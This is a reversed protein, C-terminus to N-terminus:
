LSLEISMFMRTIVSRAIAASASQQARVARECPGLVRSSLKPTECLSFTLLRLQFPTDCLYASRSHANCRRGHGCCPYAATLTDHGRQCVGHKGLRDLRADQACPGAAASHSHHLRLLLWARQDTAHLASPWVITPSESQLARRSDPPGIRFRKLIRWRRLHELCATEVQLTGCWGRWGCPGAHAIPFFRACCLPQSLEQAYRSHCNRHMAM